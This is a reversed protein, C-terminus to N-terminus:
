NVVYILQNSSIFVNEFLSHYLKLVYYICLILNYGNDRLSIIYFLIFYINFDVM